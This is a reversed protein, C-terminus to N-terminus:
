TNVKVSKKKNRNKRPNPSLEGHKIKIPSFDFRSFTNEKNNIFSLECNQDESTLDHDNGNDSVKNEPLSSRKEKKMLSSFLDSYFMEPNNINQSDQIINKNVMNLLKNPKSTKRPKKNSSMSSNNNNQIGSKAFLSFKQCSKRFTKRKKLSLTSDNNNVKELKKTSICM